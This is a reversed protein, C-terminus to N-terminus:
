VSEKQPAPPRPPPAAATQRTAAQCSARFPRFARSPMARRAAHMSRIHQTAFAGVQSADGATDARSAGLEPMEWAPGGSAAASEVEVPTRESAAPLLVTFTSGVGLASEVAIRGGHGQVIAQAIALGLGTGGTGRGRAEDARYFREFVHAHHRTAIGEGNDQVRLMAWEASVSRVAVTIRGDPLTHRIANDLLILLVQRLRDADGRVVVPTVDISLRQGSALGVATATAERAIKDLRLPAAAIQLTDALSGGDVTWADSRALLLLGDLLRGMRGSEQQIDVAAAVLDDRLRTDAPLAAIQRALVDINGRIATLPTRLEHSADAVFRQQTIFAQEIRDLMENFTVALRTLEDGAPPTPIRASLSRAAAGSAIAAAAATMRGVPRLARDALLWGGIVALALGGVSASLLVRRLSDMTETYTDLREGVLVSGIARGASSGGALILPYEVVRITWDDIRETTHTAVPQAPGTPPGMLPVDPAAASRRLIRGDADVIQILLGRSTFTELSPVVDAFRVPGPSAASAAVGDEIVSAIDKATNFLRNDMDGLLSRSTLGLVLAGLALLVLALLGAYWATLRFRISSFPRRRGRSM